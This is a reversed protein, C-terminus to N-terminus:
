QELTSIIDLLATASFCDQGLAIDCAEDILSNHYAPHTFIRSLVELEWAGLARISFLLDVYILCNEGIHSAVRLLLATQGTDPTQNNMRRHRDDLCWKFM